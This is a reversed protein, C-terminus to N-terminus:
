QVTNDTASVTNTDQQEGAGTSNTNENGTPEAVTGYNWNPNFEAVTDDVSTVKITMENHGQVSQQEFELYKPADSGEELEWQYPQGNLTYYIKKIGNEHSCMIKLVSGENDLFGYEITPNTKAEIVKSEVRANSSDSGDVATVVITNKGRPIDIVFEYEQMGESEPTMTITEGENWSYTVYAISTDDTAKVELKKNEGTAGETVTLEIEPKETDIGTASDFTFDKKTVNKQEDTVIVYLVHEGNPALVNIESTTQKEGSVVSEHGGDWSYKINDIIVPSDVTIKVKGSIENLEAMIDAEVTQVPTNAAAKNEKSTDDNHMISTVGSIILAIALIVMLIAFVKIIKDSLTRTSGGTAGGGFEKIGGSNYENREKKSVKKEKRNNNGENGGGAGFDLIQNM